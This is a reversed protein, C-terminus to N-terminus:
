AQPPELIVTAPNALYRATAELIQERTVARIREPFAEAWEWGLGFVEATSMSSALVANTQRGILYKGLIYRRAREIEEDGPPEGILGLSERILGEYAKEVTQPGTGIYLVLHSALDRIALSSGVAYALHDRDRLRSFLRASMGEGLVGCALRLAPIDASNPRPTAYGMVVFGQEVNKGLRLTKGAGEGPPTEATQRISLPGKKGLSEQSPWLTEVRKLFDDEPVNGVVTLLMRDPRIAKSHLAVVTSREMADVTEVTGEPMIQYLHNQYLLEQFRKYTYSFKEDEERLIEARVLVKEKDFEEADFVPDFLCDTMTDLAVQWDDQVTQTEIGLSDMTCFPDINGGVAEMTEAIELASRSRTGKVLLGAMLNSCGVQERADDRAGWRVAALMSLVQKDPTPRILIKCGNSLTHSRVDTM